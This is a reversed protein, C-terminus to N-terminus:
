PKSVALSSFVAETGKNEAGLGVYGRTFTKDVYSPNIQKSNVWFTFHSGNVVIKIAYHQKLGQPTGAPLLDRAILLMQSSQDKYFEYYGDASIVLDYGSKKDHQLLFRVLLRANTADGSAIVGQAEIVMNEFDQRTYLSVVPTTANGTQIHYGDTRFACANRASCDWTHPDGKTFNQQYLITPTPSSSLSGTAAKFRSLILAAPGVIVALTLLMGLGIWGLLLLRPLRKQRAAPRLPAGSPTSRGSRAGQFGSRGPASAGGSFSFGMTTRSGSGAQAANELATAFARVSGFREKPAKALATLVVEEVAPSIDPQRERLPPPPKVMHHGIIELSSGHFPRDGTLWEYVVIGLAYQDSAPRPHGNYQEPAAYGSTGAFGVTREQGSAQSEIAIGFDSLLVENQASLLMNEPKIDRHILRQDHAYQLASAIQGVYSIVLPLPVLTWRPHKQRLSGYPAYEMVLYPTGDTIGFDLMRIINPHKLGAITQAEKRFADIEKEALRTTLVKIAAETNLHIHQGLYVNAYGGQGLLRVLRYSGFQQGIHGAQEAQEAM